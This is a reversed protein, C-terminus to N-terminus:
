DPIRQDIGRRFETLFSRKLHNDIEPQSTGTLLKHLDQPVTGDSLAIIKLDGLPFAYTDPAQMYHVATAPQTTEAFAPALAGIIVSFTTSALLSRLSMTALTRNMM